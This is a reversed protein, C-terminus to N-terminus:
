RLTSELFAVHSSGALMLGDGKIRGIEAPTAVRLAVDPPLALRRGKQARFQVHRYDTFASYGQLEAQLQAISMGFCERVIEETGPGGKVRSLYAFLPKQYKLGRGYLCMHVFAQALTRLRLDGRLQDETATLMAALSPFTGLPSVLPPPVLSPDASNDAAPAQPTLRQNFDDDRRGLVGFEIWKDTYDMGAFLGAVGEVLWPPSPADFRGILYRVYRDYFQRYPDAQGTGESGLNLVICAQEENVFLQSSVRSPGRKPRLPDDPDFEEFEFVDIDGVLKGVPRLFPRAAEGDSTLILTTPLPSGARRLVPWTIDLVQQLLQFDRLFRQTANDSANSLVEFGPIRAYRWSEPAPLELPNKVTYKPLEYITDATESAESAFAMSAVAGLLAGAVPRLFSHSKM